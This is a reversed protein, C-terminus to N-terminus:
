RAVNYANEYFIRYRSINKDQRFRELNLTSIMFVSFTTRSAERIEETPNFIGMWAEAEAANEFIGVTVLLYEKEQLGETRYNKDSFNDINFNIIDFTIQNLDAQLNDAIIMVFHPETTDANYIEAAIRTDEAVQLEPIEKKLFENIESARVGEPTGPYRAILTDLKEKYATEGSLAGAIMADLLMFKPILENDPYLTIAERCLLAAEAYREGTFSEYAAEYDKRVRSAMEQQKRVYDPDSLILAYESQPFASILASRHLGARSPDNKSLLRYLEYLAEARTNDSGGEMSAAEFSQAAMVTDSLRSALIKGEALLADASKQASINMLSDTLPLNVLYYEKDQQPAKEGPEATQAKEGNEPTATQIVALRARNSRRWNDELRREGWRRRFETRGYTLAAQNYFYWGGEAAVTGMNRQENEYYQGMNYRDGGDGQQLMTQEQEFTRILGAILADREAETMQAVRRLSDEMVVISHFGAYEGLDSARRSIREYDPFRNDIIYMASDYYFYAMMYEPQSYFHNGLAMYSRARQRNNVTSSRVSLSWLEIAESDNGRRHELEGLAYYIQDLYDKNRSDRLMKHLSKKLDEYDEDSIDTVGALNIGAAFELDYPPNMKLVERFYRTSLADDDGADCAQALLYTLRVKTQKDGSTKIAKTLPTVAENYRKQRLAIDAQTSYMMSQLTRSSEEIASLSQLLRAAEAYNRDETQLRALWINAETVVEKNTTLTITYSFASRAAAYNKQYFQAKALLLYADDVWENYERRNYFEDNRSNRKGRDSEDPRATISYLAIVKSAKQIAREMDSASAQASEPTTYLFVPLLASYDDRHSAKVKELGAKYAENGNFYVNYKAILSNYFRSAGTNKEVSCGTILATLVVTMAVHYLSFRFRM